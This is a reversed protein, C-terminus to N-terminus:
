VGRSHGIPGLDVSRLNVPTDTLLSVIEETLRCDERVGLGTLIPLKNFFEAVYSPIKRCDMKMRDHIRKIPLSVITTWRM